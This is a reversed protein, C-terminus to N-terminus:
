RQSVAGSPNQRVPELRRELPSEVAAQHHRSSVKPIKMTTKALAKKEEPNNVSGVIGRPQKLFNTAKNFIM